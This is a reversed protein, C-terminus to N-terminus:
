VSYPDFDPAEWDMEYDDDVIYCTMDRDFYRRVGDWLLSHFSEKELGRQRACLMIATVITVGSALTSGDGYGYDSVVKYLTTYKRLLKKRLTWSKRREIKNRSARM